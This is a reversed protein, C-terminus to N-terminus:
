SSLIHAERDIEALVAQEAKESQAPSAAVIKLELSTGLVNEYRSVYLKDQTSNNQTSVPSTGGHCPALLLIAILLITSRMALTRSLRNDGIPSESRLLKCWKSGGDLGDSESM